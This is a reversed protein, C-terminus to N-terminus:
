TLGEGIRQTARAAADLERTLIREEDESAGGLRKLDANIQGALVTLGRLTPELAPETTAASLSAEIESAATSLDAAHERIFIRTTDGSVADQALLVGEAAESQLSKSQHLLDEAGLQAGSGCGAGVLSLIMGLRLVQKRRDPIREGPSPAPSRRRRPVDM